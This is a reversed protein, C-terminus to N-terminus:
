QEDNTLYGSCIYARVENPTKEIEVWEIPILSNQMDITAMVYYDGKLGLNVM